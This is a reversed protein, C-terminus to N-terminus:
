EKGFVKYYISTLNYREPKLPDAHKPLLTRGHITVPGDLARLEGHVVRFYFFDGDRIIPWIESVWDPTHIRIGDALEEAVTDNGLGFVRPPNKWNKPFRLFYRLADFTKSGFSSWRTFGATEPISDIDLLIIENEEFNGGFSILERWLSAQQRWNAVYDTQQLVLGYNMLLGFYCLTVIWLQRRVPFLKEHLYSFISGFALSWGFVAGLHVASLRGLTMTPPFYEARFALCYSFAVAVLGGLVIWGYRGLLFPAMGSLRHSGNRVLRSWSLLGVIVVGCTTIIVTIATAGGIGRAIGDYFASRLCTWPGLICAQFVRPLIEFRSGTITASRPDGQSSRFLLVACVIGSFVILHILLIRLPDKRFDRRFVPAILFSLYFAEYTFLSLTAVFYAIAYCRRAYLLTAVLMFTMSLHLLRHMLIVAAGDSVFTAYALAGVLAGAFPLVKRFIKFLICGNLLLIGYGIGYGLGLSAAKGSIYAVIVNLSFGLPRGQYIIWQSWIEGLAHCLDTTSWSMPPLTMVWIYDDDYLGFYDAFLYDHVLLVVAIILLATGFESIRRPGTRALTSLLFLDRRM